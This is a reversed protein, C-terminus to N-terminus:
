TALNQTTSVTYYTASTCDSAPTLDDTGAVWASDATAGVVFYGCLVSGAAATIGDVAAKYAAAASTYVQDTAVSDFTITGAADIMAAFGGYFTGTATGTNITDTIGLATGATVAAKVYPMGDIRYQFITTAVNEATSGTSLTPANIIGDSRLEALDAQAATLVANLAKRTRPDSIENIYEKLSTAM